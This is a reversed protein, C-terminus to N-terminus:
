VSIDGMANVIPESTAETHESIDLIESGEIIKFPFFEFFNPEGILIGESFQEKGNAKVLTASYWVSSVYYATIEPIAEKYKPGEVPISHFGVGVNPIKHLVRFLEEKNLNNANYSQEDNLYLLVILLGTFGLTLGLINVLMNLWNKKSNRFFIKFLIQIM